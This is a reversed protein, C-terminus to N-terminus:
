AEFLALIDKETLRTPMEEGPTILRDFMQRKRESMKLVQEEVSSHMILKWVEVMRTQGIRHARGTAQEEATPNWWPDYHIVMDAGTLNLGTGGAKLSILFISGEGANFRETLDLREAAPTEGDLYLTRYGEEELRQRILRLMSTFQSFLLIRRRAAVAEPLIDMLLELKGSAGRYDKLCLQPHCCIERLETIASLVEGRGRGLGKETLIERVRARKQLLSADYIQRQEQSMEAFIVHEQKDPLEGLVDKKLRRMLFPRIRQRLGEEDRGDGWRRMFDGYRPLYGPLVYDFLSWLEGAHNEMPTGTLAIRTQAQLQRVAHAGVSQANKVHQAEDLVAYRFLVPSLLDIDRRILPYSTIVVDPGGPRTIKEIQERRVAQTGGILMVKMGPAFRRIESMWNYTLSTPAVVLCPLKEQEDLMAREMAAIMQVTKGLGMEDALIGGLGMHRLACLWGYGRKQYERLGEVPSPLPKFRMGVLAQTQEDAEVPLQKERILATLYAARCAGLDTERGTAEAAERVEGALEQWGTIGELDVFSGDKYRFYRRNRRLAEMLPMLEEIREDGDYMELQLQGSVYRLFGKLRPRRVTIKKFDRSMYIEANEALRAAGGHIFDWIRDSGRLYVRGGQVHFGDGALEDLVAYEKKVDRILLMRKEDTGTGFPDLETEGYRFVTRCTIDGGEQDLYIRVQLPLRVMRKELEDSLVVNRGALLSPLLESLVRPTDEQSFIFLAKGSRHCRGLVKLLARDKERVHWIRGGAWMYEGDATVERLDAPVECHLRLERFTGSLSFSFDTDMEGIGDQLLSEEGYKLEFETERLADLVRRVGRPRLRLAKAAPGTEMVEGSQEVLDGLVDLLAEEKEGFRMWRPKYSFGKGFPVEEGTERAQLFRPISRVVYLRDEGAKLAIYCAGNRILLVPRLLIHDAVPLMSTVADLLAPAGSLMLQREMEQFSGDAGATLTAAVCHGCLGRGCSCEAGLPTVTVQYPQDDQVTYLAETGTRRRERVMARRYLSLGLAYEKEGAEERLLEISIM